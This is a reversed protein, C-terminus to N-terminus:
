PCTPCPCRLVPVAGHSSCLRVPVSVCSLAVCSLSPAMARLLLSLVPVPVGSLSSVMTNRRLLLSARAGARLVPASGRRPAVDCPRTVPGRRLAEDCPRTAPGRRLAVDCPRTVPGQQLAVDCPRSGRRLALVRLALDCPRTAPGRRLAM